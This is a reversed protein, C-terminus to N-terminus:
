NTISKNRNPIRNLDHQMVQRRKCTKIVSLHGPMRSIIWVCCNLVSTLTKKLPSYNGKHFGRMFKKKKEDLSLNYLDPNTQLDRTTM